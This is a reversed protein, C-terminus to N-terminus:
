IGSPLPFHTSYARHSICRVASMLPQPHTGPGWVVEKGELDQGCRFFRENDPFFYEIFIKIPGFFVFLFSLTLAPLNSPM